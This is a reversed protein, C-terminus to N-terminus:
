SFPYSLDSLPPYDMNTNVIDNLLIPIETQYPFYDMNTNLTTQYPLHDM